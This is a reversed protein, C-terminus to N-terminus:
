STSPPATPAPPPAGPTKVPTDALNVLEALKTASRGMYKMLLKSMPETLPAWSAKPTLAAELVQYKASPEVRVEGAGSPVPATGPTAPSSRPKMGKQVMCFTDPALAVTRM